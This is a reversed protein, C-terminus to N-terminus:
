IRWIIYLALTDATSLDRAIMLIIFASYLIFLRSELIIWCDYHATARKM